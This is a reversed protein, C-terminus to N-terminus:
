LYYMRAIQTHSVRKEARISCAKPDARRRWWHLKPDGADVAQREIKRIIQTANFIQTATWDYYKEEEEQTKTYNGHISSYYCSGLPHSAKLTCTGVPYALLFRSFGRPTGLVESFFVISGFGECVAFVPENHQSNQIIARLNDLLYSYDGGPYESYGRTKSPFWYNEFTIPAKTWWLLQEAQM